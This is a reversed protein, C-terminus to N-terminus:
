APQRLRRKFARDDVQPRDLRKSKGIDKNSLSVTVMPRWGRFRRLRVGEYQREISHDPIRWDKRRRAETETTRPKENMAAAAAIGRESYGSGCNM